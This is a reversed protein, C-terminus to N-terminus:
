GKLFIVSGRSLPVGRFRRIGTDHKDDPLQYQGILYADANEYMANKVDYPRLNDPDRSLKAPRNDTDLFEYLMTYFSDPMNPRQGRM